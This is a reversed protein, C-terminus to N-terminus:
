KDTKRANVLALGASKIEASVLAALDAPKSLGHKQARELAAALAAALRQQKTEM